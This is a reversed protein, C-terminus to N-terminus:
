APSNHKTRIPPYRVPYFRSTVFSGESFAEVGGGDPEEDAGRGIRRRQGAPRSARQWFPPAFAAAHVRGVGPLELLESKHDCM